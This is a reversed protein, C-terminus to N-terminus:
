DVGPDRSKNRIQWDSEKLICKVFIHIDVINRIKDEKINVLVRNHIMLM